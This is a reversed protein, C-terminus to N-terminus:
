KIPPHFRFFTDSSNQVIWESGKPPEQKELSQAFDPIKRCGKGIHITAIRKKLGENKGRPGVYKYNNRLM